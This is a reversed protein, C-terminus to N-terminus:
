FKHFTHRSSRSDNGHPGERAIVLLFVYFLYQYQMGMASNILTYAVIPYFVLAIPRRGIRTIAWVLSIFFVVLGVLGFSFMVEAPLNYTLRLSGKAKYFETASNLGRGFLLIAMNSSVDSFFGLLGAVRTNYGMGGLTLVSLIGDSLRKLIFAGTLVYLGNLIRIINMFIAIILVAIGVKGAAPLRMFALMGLSLVIAVVVTPSQALWVAPLAILLLLLFRREALWATVLISLPFAMASPESLLGQMRRSGYNFDIGIRLAYLIMFTIVMVAAVRRILSSLQGANLQTSLFLTPLFYAIYVVSDLFRPHIPSYLFSVFGIISILVLARRDVSGRLALALGSVAVATLLGPINVDIRGLPLEHVFTLVLVVVAFGEGASRETM